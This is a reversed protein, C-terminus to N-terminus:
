FHNSVEFDFILKAIKAITIKTEEEHDGVDTTMVGVFFVIDDQKVIGVDHISGIADGTKHYVNTSDPLLKPIRDEIDTDKLFDLLERALSANTVEGEYIKKILIYMDFLSTKNNAMNTQTLGFAEITKQIKEAGIKKALVHAATNDSKQLSFKALTKLSYVSGEKQYRIIGTGYDQIDDKQITVKENLDLKDKAALYYLTSVIALKNVSAATHIYHENIGFSLEKKALDSFYVTYNGKQQDIVDRVQKKLGAM